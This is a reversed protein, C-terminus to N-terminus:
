ISMAIRIHKTLFSEMIKDQFLHLLPTPDSEEDFMIKHNDLDIYDMLELIIKSKEQLERLLEPDDEIRQKISNLEECRENFNEELVMFTEDSIQAISRARLHGRSKQYFFDKAVPDDFFDMNVIRNLNEDRKLTIHDSYKFAYEFNRPNIVYIYQNHIIFSPVGGIEIMPQTLEHFDNSEIIGLCYRKKASSITM